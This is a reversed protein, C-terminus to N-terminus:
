LRRTERRAVGGLQNADYGMGFRAHIVLGVTESQHLCHHSVDVPIIGVVVHQDHAIEVHVAGAFGTVLAKGVGIRIGIGEKDIGQGVYSPHPFPVAVALKRWVM